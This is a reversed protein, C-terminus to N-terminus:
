ECRFEWDGAAVVPELTPQEFDVFMASGRAVGGEYSTEPREIDFQALSSGASWDYAGSGDTVFASATDPLSPTATLYIEVGPDDVSTGNLLVIGEMPNNCFGEVTWTNEGITITGTGDPGVTQDGDGDLADGADVDDVDAMDSTDDAASTDAADNGLDAFAGGGGDDGCSVVILAFAAIMVLRNIRMEVEKRRVAREHLATDVM